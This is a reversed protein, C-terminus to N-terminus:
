SKKKFYKVAFYITATTFLTAATYKASTKLQEELAKIGDSVMRNKEEVTCPRTFQSPELSTINTNELFEKVSIENGDEVLKVHKQIDEPNKRIQDLDSSSFSKNYKKIGEETIFITVNNITGFEFFEPEKTERHSAAAVNEEKPKTNEEALVMQSSSVFTLAAFILFAFRNKFISFHNMRM